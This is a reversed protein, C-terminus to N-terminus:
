EGFEYIEDFEINGNIIEDICRDKLRKMAIDGYLNTSKNYNRIKEKMNDTIDLIEFIAKRGIFGDLCENCGNHRYLYIDNDINLLNKEFQKINYKIKCRPCLVKVLRQSIVGKLSAAVMFPEVGIDILREIAEHSNNTHLTSLVLHGTIAARAVQIATERERIEGVMIIEPDHRLISKLIKNYNLNIKDNIQIQNINNIKLEVPDEVTIINNKENDFSKLISYLSTSKGCGTPGVVLILGSKNNLLRNLKYLDDKFELNGLEIIKNENDLIRLSIKEGYINPIISIRININEGKYNYIFEGNQIDNKIAIDLNSMIKLRSVIEDTLNNNLYYKKNLEGNIRYKIVLEKYRSEIHIDTGNNDLALKIIKNVTEPVTKNKFENRKSQM